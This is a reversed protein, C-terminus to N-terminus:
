ARSAASLPKGLFALARRVGAAHRCLEAYEPDADPLLKTETPLRFDSLVMEVDLPGFVVRGRADAGLILNEWHLDTLGLWSFLALARGLVAALERKQDASRAVLPELQARQVQGGAAADAKWFELTPLFEFANVGLAHSRGLERLLRRLPSKDSLLLQEWLLKRPKVVRDGRMEVRRGFNHSDGLPTGPGSMAPVM